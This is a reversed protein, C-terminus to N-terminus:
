QIVSAIQPSCPPGTFCWATNLLYESLEDESSTSSGLDELASLHRVERCQPNPDTSGLLCKYGYALPTPASPSHTERGSKSILM